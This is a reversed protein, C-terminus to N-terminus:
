RCTACKCGSKHRRAPASGVVHRASRPLMKEVRKVVKQFGELRRISRRLARVNTPNMSRRKGGLGLAGGRGQGLGLRSAIAGVVNGKVLERGMAERAQSWDVGGPKSGRQSPKTLKGGGAIPTVGAARKARKTAKAKAKTRPGAAATKRRAVKGGPDGIGLLELLRQLPDEQYEPEPVAYVEEPEVAVPQQMEEPAMGYARAFGLASGVGPIMPAAISAISKLARGPQFKRIAKPLKLKKRLKKPMRFSFPDGSLAAYERIFGM